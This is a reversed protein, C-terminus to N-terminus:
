NVTGILFQNMARQQNEIVTVNTAALQRFPSEIAACQQSFELAAALNNTQYNSFALLFLAEAKLDANSEVLPLAARLEKDATDYKRSNFNSKGIMFHALGTFFARRSEWDAESVGGPKAKAKMVDLMRTSYSFVKGPNGMQLHGSALVLLMYENDPEVALVKEALALTMDRMAGEVDEVARQRGGQAKDDRVACTRKTTGQSRKM